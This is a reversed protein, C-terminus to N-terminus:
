EIAKKLYNAALIQADTAEPYTRKMYEMLINDLTPTSSSPTASRTAVVKRKFGEISVNKAGLLIFKNKEANIEDQDAYDGDVVKVYNDSIDDADCVDGASVKLFKPASTEYHTFKNDEPYYICYGALNDVDSWSQHTLAGCSIINKDGVNYQKHNHYHGFVVSDFNLDKFFEPNFGHDPISTIVGNLPAHLCLVNRYKSEPSIKANVALIMDSLDKHKSVWPIMHYLTNDFAYNNFETVVKVGVEQLSLISAGHKTADNTELDHNGALMIVTFGDKILKKYMETVPNLVSPSLNGRVHFADGTHIIVSGGLSKLKNAAELTAKIIDILRTNLGSSTLQSYQAFNHYHTDSIFLIPKKRM